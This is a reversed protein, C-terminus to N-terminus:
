DLPLLSLIDGVILYTYIVYRDAEERSVEAHSGKQTAEAVADLRDGLFGLHSGVIDQFRNSDSKDEAFCILRNIYNDPGL